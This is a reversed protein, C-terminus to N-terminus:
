LSALSFAICVTTYATLWSSATQLSYHKNDCECPQVNFSALAALDMVAEHRLGKVKVGGRLRCGFGWFRDITM